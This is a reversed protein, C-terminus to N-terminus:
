SHALAQHAVSVGRAVVHRMRSDLAVRWGVPVSRGGLSRPEAPDPALRTWLVIGDSTPDGSAVGLTFPNTGFPRGRFLDGGPVLALSLSGAVGSWTHRLFQRRDVGSPLTKTRCSMHPRRRRSLALGCSPGDVCRLPSAKADVAYRFRNPRRVARCLVVGPQRSFTM